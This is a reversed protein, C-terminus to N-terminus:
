KQKRKHVERILLVEDSNFKQNGRRNPVGARRTIDALEKVSVGLEEALKYAQISSSPVPPPADLEPARRVRSGRLQRSSPATPKSPQTRGTPKPRRTQGTGDAGIAVLYEGLQEGNEVIGIRLDPSLSVEIVVTGADSDGATLRLGGDIESIEASSARHPNGVLSIKGLALVSGNDINIELLDSGGQLAWRVSGAQGAPVPRDSDAADLQSRLKHESQKSDLKWTNAKTVQDQQMQRSQANGRNEAIYAASTVLYRRRCYDRLRLNQDDIYRGYFNHARLSYRAMEHLAGIAPVDEVRINFKRSRLVEHIEDSVFVLANRDQDGVARWDQGELTQAIGQALSVLVELRGL